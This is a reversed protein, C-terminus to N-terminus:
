VAKKQRQPNLQSANARALFSRSMLRTLQISLYNMWGPVLSSKGKELADLTQTVVEQASVKVGAEPVANEAKTHFPTEVQGPCVAVVQIGRERYEAWLGQSFSLVFAKSAAYVTMYPLAMFAGMSSVNIIGGEGRAVMEPLFAHSLDVVATVNLMVQQHDREPDIKEFADYTTFGANNILLHVPLHKQQVMEKLHVIDAPRSLDAVIVDSRVGYQQTLEAALKNLVDESRAVLIVHMGRKALERAFVEGIGSSAGTILATKEKYRDM